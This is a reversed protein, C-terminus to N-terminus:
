ARTGQGKMEGAGLTGSYKTITTGDARKSEFEVRGDRLTGEYNINGAHGTLKDAQFTLEARLYAPAGLEITTILWDGSQPLSQSTLFGSVILFLPLIRM